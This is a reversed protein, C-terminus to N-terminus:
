KKIKKLGFLGLTGILTVGIMLLLTSTEEGTQPLTGKLKHKNNKINKNSYKGTIINSSSINNLSQKSNTGINILSNGNNYGNIINSGSDNKSKNDTKALVTVTVVKSQGDTASITVNYIGPVNINVKSTDITVVESKGTKDTASADFDNDNFQNGTYITINKGTISEKNALVTVTVIKSQGDVTTLTVTYVGPKDIDVQSTDINVLESNGLKDTARANFDFNNIKDGIYITVNEGNISAKSPVSNGWIWTGYHINGDTLKDSSLATDGPVVNGVNDIQVWGNYEKSVMPLEVSSNFLTNDGFKLKRLSTDNSFVNKMNSVNKTNWNSLDLSNLNIDGQFLSSMDQVQSTDWDSIGSIETLAQDESFMNSMNNVNSFDLNNLGTISNLDTLNSFLNNSDVPVLVGSDIKISTIKNSLLQVYNDNYIPSLTGSVIELIGTQGSEGHFIASAGGNLPFKFTGGDAITIGGKFQTNNSKFKNDVLNNKFENPNNNVPNPEDKKSIKSNNPSLLTVQSDNQIQNESSKTQDNTTQLVNQSVSLTTQPNTNNTSVATDSTQSTTDASM